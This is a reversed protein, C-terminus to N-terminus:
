ILSKIIKRQWIIIKEEEAIIVLTNLITTSVDAIMGGEYKRKDLKDECL